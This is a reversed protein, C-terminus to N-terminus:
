IRKERPLGSQRGPIRSIWIECREREPHLCVVKETM